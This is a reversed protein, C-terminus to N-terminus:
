NDSSLTYSIGLQLTNDYQKIVNDGRIRDTLGVNLKLFLDVNEFDLGILLPVSLCFPSYLTSFFSTEVDDGLGAEGIIGTASILMVGATLGAGYYFRTKTNFTYIASTNLFISNSLIDLSGRPNGSEDTSHQGGLLNRNSTLEVSALLNRKESCSKRMYGGISLSPLVSPSYAQTNSSSTSYTFNGHIGGQIGFEQASLSSFLCIFILLSLTRSIM